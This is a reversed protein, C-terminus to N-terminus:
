AGLVGASSISPIIIGLVMCVFCILSSEKALHHRDDLMCSRKECSPLYVRLSQSVIRKPPFKLAKQRVSCRVFTYATEIPELVATVDALWDKWSVLECGCTFNFPYGPLLRRIKIPYCDNEM